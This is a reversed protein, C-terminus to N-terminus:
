QSPAGYAGGGPTELLVVDGPAMVMKRPESVSEGNILFRGAAGAGGGELGEPGRTLQSPVANLLWPEGTAMHFGIIQGEGGASRGKGGSGRRLERRDFVIPMAAELVEVPVAAVGTPYCTASPGPKAARAGMGGSYNFMSSTFAEGSARKGQIQVTWVAGSGEALVRDPIVQHLAKLIPMPVFMGVVHR